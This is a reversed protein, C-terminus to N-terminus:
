LLYVNTRIRPPLRNTHKWVEWVAYAILMGYRNAPM